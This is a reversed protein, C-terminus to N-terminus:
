PWFMQYDLEKIWQPPLVLKAPIQPTAKMLNETKASGNSKLRLLHRCFTPSTLYLYSDTLSSIEFCYATSALWRNEHRRSPRGSDAATNLATTFYRPLGSVGFWECVLTHPRVLCPRTSQGMCPDAPTIATGWHRQAKLRLAVQLSPCSSQMLAM